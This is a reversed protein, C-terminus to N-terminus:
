EGTHYEIAWTSTGSGSARTWINYDTGAILGDVEHGDPNVATYAERVISDYDRVGDSEQVTVETLGQRVADEFIGIYYQLAEEDSMEPLSYTIRVIYDRTASDISGKITYDTGAHLGGPTTYGEAGAAREAQSAYYWPQDPRDAYSGGQLTLRM